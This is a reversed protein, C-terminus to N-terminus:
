ENYVINIETTPFVKKNHMPTLFRNQTKISYFVFLYM